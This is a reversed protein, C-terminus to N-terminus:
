SQARGCSASANERGRRSWKMGSDDPAFRARVRCCRGLACIARSALGPVSLTMLLMREVGEDATDCVNPRRECNFQRVALLPVKTLALRLETDAKAILPREPGKAAEIFPVDGLSVEVAVEVDFAVHQLRERQTLMEVITM